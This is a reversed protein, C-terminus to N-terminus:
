TDPGLKELFRMVKRRKVEMLSPKTPITPSCLSVNPFGKKQYSKISSDSLKPINAFVLYEIGQEFKFGCTAPSPHSYVVITRDLDKKYSRSVKFEFRDLREDLWNAHDHKIVTGAFIFEYNEFAEPLLSRACSCALADFSVWSLAMFLTIVKMRHPVYRRWLPRAFRTWGVAKQPRDKIAQNHM